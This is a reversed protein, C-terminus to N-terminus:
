TTAQPALRDPEGRSGAPNAGRGILFPVITSVFMLVSIVYLAGGYQGTQERLAAILM